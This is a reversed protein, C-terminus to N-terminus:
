GVDALIDDMMVAAQKGAAPVFHRYVNLTVAANRHGLQDAVTGVDVGKALLSTAYHHRCDHLRIDSCGEAKRSFRDFAQTVGNPKMPELSHIDNSFIFASGPLRRGNRDEMKHRHELLLAVTAPGINVRRAAHTKTGKTIVKTRGHAIAQEILLTQGKPDFDSWRLGCLEGRRAGSACAVRILTALAPNRSTRAVAVIRTLQAVSPVKTVHYDSVSPATGKDLPNVMLWDWQVAQDLAAHLVSHYNHKTQPARGLDGLFDDLMKYTLDRLSEGAISDAKIQKVISAYGRYTTEGLDPEVKKRMWEDLTFGLTGETSRAEQAETIMVALRADAATKADKPNKFGAGKFGESKYISRKTVPDRGVYVVLEYYRDRGKKTRIYGRM